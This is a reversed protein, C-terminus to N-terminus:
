GQEDASEPLLVSAAESRVKELMNHFVGNTAAAIEVLGLCNMQLFQLAPEVSKSYSLDLVYYAAILSVIAESSPGDIAMWYKSEIALHLSQGHSLIFPAQRSKIAKLM